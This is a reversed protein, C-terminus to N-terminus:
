AVRDGRSRPGARQVIRMRDMAKYWGIMRATLFMVAIGAANVVLQMAVASDYEALYFHGLASL